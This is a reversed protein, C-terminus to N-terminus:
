RRSRLRALYFADAEPPWTRTEDVLELGTRKVLAAIQEPGEARTFTCVSYILTGGPALRPVVADLLMRQLKALRPVDAPKLRWKADPHRRLVGLGTCPADLVILDYNTGLPAAPDLLDCTFVRVSSLGMRAATEQGLALKTASLDAADIQARDDTLEALHM